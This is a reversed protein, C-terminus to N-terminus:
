NGRTFRVVKGLGNSLPISVVRGVIVNVTGAATDLAGATDSVYVPVDYNLGSVDFGEVEGQLLISTVEGIAAARLAIGRAQATGAVAGSALAGLGAATIYVLQGATVAASMRVTRTEMNEFLPAVRAATVTIVAM